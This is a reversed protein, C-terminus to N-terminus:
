DCAGNAALPTPSTDESYGAVTTPDGGNWCVSSGEAVAPVFTGATWVGATDAVAERANGGDFWQVYGRIADATGFSGTHWYLAVMDDVAASGDGLETKAGTYYHGAPQNDTGTANWHILIHEGPALVIDQPLTYYQFNSACLRWGGLDIDVSDNNVLEITENGADSGAVAYVVESIVIDGDDAAAPEADDGATADPASPDADVSPAADAAPAADAVPADPNIAADATQRADPIVEDDGGCAVTLVSVIALLRMAAM